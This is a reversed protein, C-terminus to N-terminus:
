YNIIFIFHVMHLFRKAGNPAWSPHVEINLIGKTTNCCVITVLGPPPSVIHRRTPDLPIFNLCGEWGANDSEFLENMSKALKNSSKTLDNKSKNKMTSKNLIDNHVDVIAFDKKTSPMHWSFSFLSICCLLMVVIISLVPKNKLTKLKQNFM